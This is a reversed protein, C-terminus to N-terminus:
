LFLSRRMRFKSFPEHDFRRRRTHGEEDKAEEEVENTIVAHMLGKPHRNNVKPTSRELSSNHLQKSKFHAPLTNSRRNLHKYPSNEFSEHQSTFLRSEKKSKGDEAWSLLASPHHPLAVLGAIRSLKRNDTCAETSNSNAINNCVKVSTSIELM